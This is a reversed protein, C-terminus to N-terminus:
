RCYNYEVMICTNQIGIIGKEEVTNIVENNVIGLQLWLCKPDASIIDDLLENITESRRFVNVIDIKFPVDKLSPYVEIDGASSIAPNVGAVIYGKEKLFDAITRSIKYPNGSIGVVAITKAEKLIKCTDAM